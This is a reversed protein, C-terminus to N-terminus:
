QCQSPQGVALWQGWDKGRDEATICLHKASAALPFRWFRWYNDADEMPAVALVRSTDPDRIEVSLGDVSIGHLVPVIICGNVPANFKLSRLQGTNADSGSWSGYSRKPPTTGFQSGPPVGNVTWSPDMRWELGTIPAGVNELPAVTVAPIASPGAILAIGPRRREIVYTSFSKTPFASNIFGVWALSSPTIMSQLEPPFGALLKGGLGVIRGSDNVFVIRQSRSGETWGEVEVGGLVPRIRTVAGSQRPRPLESFRSVFAKGLSSSYGRHFISLHNNRLAPLYIKVFNLDPFVYQIMEPDLLGSEVSLSAWQQRAFVLDNTSLWEGFKPLALWLLVIATLAIHTPSALRWRSRGSLWILVMVLAGWNVLPVTLYRSAKAATFSTDSPNMRGAAILLGSLLTFACHGFLVIAPASTLLRARAAIAFLVFFLLINVFGIWLAFQSTGLIGFPMSVYSSLYALLYVPHTLLTSLNLAASVRYGVFYLGINAVAASALAMLYQKKLSLLVATTLIIPWLVLGNASSYTAVTGGVITGVLYILRSTKRFLSLSALAFVSASQTLTWNLLFPIGLAMASGEWGMVVGALLVTTYRIKLALNRDSLLVWSMVLWNSFYCIFSIALPLIQRGHLLLMDVAFIVEPFVIRHENHQQWLVGVDFARYAQLNQVVNWYDWNPLPNYYCLIKRATLFWSFGAWASLLLLLPLAIRNSNASLLGRMRTILYAWRERYSLFRLKIDVPQSSKAIRNM